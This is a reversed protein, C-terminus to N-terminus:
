AGGPTAGALEATKETRVLPSVLIILPRKIESVSVSLTRKAGYASMRIHENSGGPGTRALESKMGCTM